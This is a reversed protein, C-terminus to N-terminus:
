YVKTHTRDVNDMVTEEAPLVTSKKVTKIIFITSIKLGNEFIVQKLLM